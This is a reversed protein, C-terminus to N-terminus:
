YKNYADSSAHNENEVCKTSEPTDLPIDWKERYSSKKRIRIDTPFEYGRYLVSAPLLRDYLEHLMHYYGVVHFSRGECTASYTRKVMPNPNMLQKYVLFVGQVRSATWSMDDTWRKIRSEEELYLFVSGHRIEKREKLTLRRQVRPIIGKRALDILVMCDSENEIRGYFSEINRM